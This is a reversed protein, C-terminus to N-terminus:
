DVAHTENMDVRNAALKRKQPVTTSAPASRTLPLRTSAGAPPFAPLPVAEGRISPNASSGPLAHISPPVNTSSSVDIPVLLSEGLLARKLIPLADLDPAFMEQWVTDGGVSELLKVGLDRRATWVGLATLEPLKVMRLRHPRGPPSPVTSVTLGPQRWLQGEVHRRRAEGAAWSVDLEDSALLASVRGASTKDGIPKPGALSVAFAAIAKCFFHRFPVMRPALHHAKLVGLVVPFLPALMSELFAKQKCQALIAHFIHEALPANDTGICVVLLDEVTGLWKSLGDLPHRWRDQRPATVDEPKWGKDIIITRHAYVAMIFAKWFNIPLQFNRLQPLLRSPGFAVDDELARVLHSTDQLTPKLMNDLLTQRSEELFDFFIKQSSVPGFVNDLICLRDWNTSRYTPHKHLHKHLPERLANLLLERWQGPLVADSENSLSEFRELLSKWFGATFSLQQLLPVLSTELFAPDHRQLTQCTQRDPIPAGALSGSAGSQWLNTFKRIGARAPHADRRLALVDLHAGAQPAEPPPAPTAISSPAPLTITSARHGPARVRSLSPPLPGFFDSYMRGM